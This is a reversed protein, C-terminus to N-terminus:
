VRELMKSFVIKRYLLPYCYFYYLIHIYLFLLCFFFETIMYSSWLAGFQRHCVNENEIFIPGIVAESQLACCVTVKEPRLGREEIVQRKESGWIRFIQKNVYWGLTIHAEVSFFIKNSFNGNM